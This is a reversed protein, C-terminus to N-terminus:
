GKVVRRVQQRGDSVLRCFYVGAPLGSADWNLTHEGSSLRQDLLVKLENGMADFVSLRVRGTSLSKFAITTSQGMPNPFVSMDPEPINVTDEVANVACPAVIPLHTFGNYLFTRVDQEPVEFWDMLVSGYVDRFDHQM